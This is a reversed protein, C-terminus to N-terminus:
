LRVCGPGLTASCSRDAPGLMYELDFCISEGVRLVPDRARWVSWAADFKRGPFIYKCRNCKFSSQDSRELGSNTVNISSGNNRM